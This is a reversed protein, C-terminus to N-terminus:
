KKLGHLESLQLSDATLPNEPSRVVSHGFVTKQQQKSKQKTKNKVNSCDM